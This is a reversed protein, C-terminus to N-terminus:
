VEKKCDPCVYFQMTFVKNLYKNPHACSTTININVNSVVGRRPTSEGNTNFGLNGRKKDLISVHRVNGKQVDFDISEEKLTSDLMDYDTTYSIKYTYDNLNRDIITYKEFMIRYLNCSSFFEDGVNYKM